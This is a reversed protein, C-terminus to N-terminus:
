QKSQKAASNRTKNNNKKKRQQQPSFFWTPKFRRRINDLARNDIHCFNKGNSMGEPGYYKKCGRCRRNNVKSPKLKGDVGPVNKVKVPKGDPTLENDPSEGTKIKQKKCPPTGADDQLDDIDFTTVDDSEMQMKVPSGADDVAPHQPTVAAPRGETLADEGETVAAM